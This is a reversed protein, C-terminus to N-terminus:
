IELLSGHGTLFILWSAKLLSLYSLVCRPRTQGISRGTQVSTRRFLFRRFPRCNPM